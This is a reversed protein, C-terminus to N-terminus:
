GFVIVEYTVVKVAKEGEIEYNSIWGKKMEKVTDIKYLEYVNAVPQILYYKDVEKVEMLTSIRSPESYTNNIFTDMDTQIKKHVIHGDQAVVKVVIETINHSAVITRILSKDIYKILDKNYEIAIKAMEITQLEPKIEMIANANQKVAILCLVPYEKDVVISPKCYKITLGNLKVAEMCLEMTQENCCGLMMPKSKIVQMWLKLAIPIAAYQISECNQEIAIQCMQSTQCMRPVYQLAKGNLKVATLYYDQICNKICMVSNPNQKIGALCLEPTQHKEPVYQMAMGDKEVALLYYQYPLEVKKLWRISQPSRKIVIQYQESSPNDIYRICQPFMDLMKGIFASTGLHNPIALINIFQFKIAIICLEETVFKPNACQIMNGNSRIVIDCMEATQLHYPIYPFINKRASDKQQKLAMLSLEATVFDANAYRLNASNNTIAIKCIDETQLHHPIYKLIPVKEDKIALLYLDTTLFEPKVYKICRPKQTVSIECMEKTQLHHPIVSLNRPNSKILYNDNHKVINLRIEGTPNICKVSSM